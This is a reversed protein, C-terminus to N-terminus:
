TIVDCRVFALYCVAFHCRWAAFVLYGCISWRRVAACWLFATGEMAPFHPHKSDYNRNGVM